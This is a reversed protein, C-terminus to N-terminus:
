ARAPLAPQLALADTIACAATYEAMTQSPCQSIDTNTQWDYQDATVGGSYHIENFGAQKLLPQVKNFTTPNSYVPDWPAIDVGLPAASLTVPASDSPASTAAGAAGPLAAAALVALTM